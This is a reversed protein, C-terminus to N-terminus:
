QKGSKLVRKPVRQVKVFKARFLDELTDRVSVPIREVLEEITPLPKAEPEEAAENEAVKPTPIEGRGRAEALFEAEATEESWGGTPEPDFDGGVGISEPDSPTEGGSGAPAVIAVPLVVASAAPTMREPIKVPMPESMAIAAVAAAGESLTRAL